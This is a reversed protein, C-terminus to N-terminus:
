EFCIKNVGHMYDACYEKMGNIQSEHTKCQNIEPEGIQETQITHAILMPDNVACWVWILTFKVM